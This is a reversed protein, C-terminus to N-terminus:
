ETTCTDREAETLPRLTVTLQGAGNISKPEVLRTTEMFRDRGGTMHNSGYWVLRFMAEHHMYATRSMSIRWMQPGYRKPDPVEQIIWSWGQGENLTLDTRMEGSKEDTEWEPPGNVEIVYLPASM